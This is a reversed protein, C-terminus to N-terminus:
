IYFHLNRVLVHVLHLCDDLFLKLLILEKVHEPSGHGLVGSECLKVPIGYNLPDLILADDTIDDFLYLHWLCSWCCCPGWNILSLNLLM